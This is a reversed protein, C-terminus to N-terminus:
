GPSSPPLCHQKGPQAKMVSVMASCYSFVISNAIESALLLWAAASLFGMVWHAPPHRLVPCVTHLIGRCTHVMRIFLIWGSRPFFGREALAAYVAAVAHGKSLIFRDREPWDPQGPNVQLVGDYLVALLDAISLCGGVHSSRARHTMRLIHARIQTAFAKRHAMRVANCDIDGIKEGM